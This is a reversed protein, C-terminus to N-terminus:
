GEPIRIILDFHGFEVLSRFGRADPQDDESSWHVSSNEAMRNGLVRIGIHGAGGSGHMKVLIDGLVTGSALPVTYGAARFNNGTEVATAGFLADFDGPCVAEVVQRVWRSCYHPRTEFGDAAIAAIAEDNLEKNM